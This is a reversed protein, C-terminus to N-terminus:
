NAHIVSGDRFVTAVLPGMHKESLGFQKGDRYVYVHDTYNHTIWDWYRVARHAQEIAADATKYRM